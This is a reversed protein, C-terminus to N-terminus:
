RGGQYHIFCQDKSALKEDDYPSSMHLNCFMPEFTEWYKEIGKWGGILEDTLRAWAPEDSNNKGLREWWYIAKQPFSKDRLYIFGGNPVKRLEDERWHAKRRHYMQLNAQFSGKERMRDWFDTPLSKQPFCDWDLYVLEDYGDEEMAYKIIELKHRYTYKVLDFPAPNEDILKCDFGLSKISEYNQKGMVYVLFPINFKSRKISSINKDIRFRRRTIKHSEDHIGWLARIFGHKM